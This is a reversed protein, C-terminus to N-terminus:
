EAEGSKKRVWVGFSWHTEDLSNKVLCQVGASHQKTEVVVGVTQGFQTLAVAGVDDVTAERINTKM